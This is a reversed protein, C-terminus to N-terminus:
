EIIRRVQMLRLRVSIRRGGGTANLDGALLGDSFDLPMRVKNRALGDRSVLSGELDGDLIWKTGLGFLRAPITRNRGIKANRLTADGVTGTVTGDALVTLRVPLGETLSPSKVEASGEWVGVLEPNSQAVAGPLPLSVGAAVLASVSLRKMM